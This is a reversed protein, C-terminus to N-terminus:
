AVAKAIAARRQGLSAVKGNRVMFFVSMPHAGDGYATCFGGIQYIGDSLMGWAVGGTKGSRSLSRYDREVFVRELGYKPDTGTVAGIYADGGIGRRVDVHAGDATITATGVDLAEDFDEPTIGLVDFLALEDRDMGIYVRSPGHVGTVRGAETLYWASTGRALIAYSSGGERAYIRYLSGPRKAKPTGAADLDREAVEAAEAVAQANLRGARATGQSKNLAEQVRAIDQVNIKMTPNERESLPKEERMVGVGRANERM